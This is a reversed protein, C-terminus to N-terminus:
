GEQPDCSGESDPCGSGCSDNECPVECPCGEEPCPEGQAGELAPCCEGGPCCGSEPDCCEGDSIAAVNETGVEPDVLQESSGQANVAFGLVVSLLLKSLKVM